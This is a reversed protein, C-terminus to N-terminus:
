ERFPQEKAIKDLNENIKKLFLQAKEQEERPFGDFVASGFRRQLDQGAAVAERSDPLLTLKMSRRDGADPEQALWGRKELASVAASVHSKAIGRVNVIDAARTYQPNNALFLLVGMENATLGFRRCVPDMAQAYLRRLRTVVDWYLPPMPTM